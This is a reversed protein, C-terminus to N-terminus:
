LSTINLKQHEKRVERDESTVFPVLQALTREEGDFEIKASAILKQYQSGLKNELQM